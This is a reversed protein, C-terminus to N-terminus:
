DEADDGSDTAEDTSNAQDQSPATQAPASRQPAPAAPQQPQQPVTYYTGGPGTYYGPAQGYQPAPQAYGPAPQAYGSSPATTTGTTPQQRTTSVDSIIHGDYKSGGVCTGVGDDARQVKGKSATCQQPTVPQKGPEAPAAFAPAALGAVAAATMGAVVMSRTAKM